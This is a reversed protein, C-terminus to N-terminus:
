ASMANKTTTASPKIKPTMRPNEFDKLPTNREIAIISEASSKIVGVKSETRLRSINLFISDEM